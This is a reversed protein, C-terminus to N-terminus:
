CPGHKGDEEMEKFIFSFTGHLKPEARAQLWLRERPGPRDWGARVRASATRARQAELPTQLQIKATVQGPAWVAALDPETLILDCLGGVM